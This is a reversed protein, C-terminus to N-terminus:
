KPQVVEKARSWRSGNPSRTIDELTNEMCLSAVRKADELIDATYIKYIYM